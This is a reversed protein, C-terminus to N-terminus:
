LTKQNKAPRFIAPANILANFRALLSPSHREGKLVLRLHNPTVKLGRAMQGIGPFVTKSGKARGRRWFDTARHQTM